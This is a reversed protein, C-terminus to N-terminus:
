LRFARLVRLLVEAGLALDAESAFEAPNHSIGGRCRVFIMGIPMIEGIVMADHGAGSALRHVQIGAAAVAEGIQAVLRPDCPAARATHTVVAESTTGHNRAARRIAQTIEEVAADRHADVPSRVDVTFRVRGPIVNVAGPLVELRGVTGVVSGTAACIREVALVCEAAVVLADSRGEMPVTGAHGATGVVEVALRTAGSIATVVGVPLGMHELVPGQEIHLELYGLFEAPDRRAEDLRAADLGFLRMAERMPMGHDDPLRLAAMDFRGALARSGLMTAGFRTGEEDCFGAVEIAHPLREGARHLADVCAVACVVGAMGDFRGADRVTDLHSGLLVARAGPEAGEYRGIVNGIADTRVEMGAATMWNGVMTNARRHQPTFATRTLGTESETIAALADLRAAIAAGNIGGGAAM